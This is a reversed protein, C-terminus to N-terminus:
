GFLKLNCNNDYKFRPYHEIFYYDPKNTGRM